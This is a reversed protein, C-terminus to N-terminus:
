NELKKLRLKSIIDTLVELMEELDKLTIEGMHGIRFTKGMLDGYGNVIRYGKSLMLNVMESYDINFTNKITSVTDSEYGKEPFMELNADRAWMRTRMGLQKHRQFRSELGEKNLIYDLQAVLSRIQPIPPTSPTQHLKNKKKLTIFDLYIGRNKVEAAKQIAAESISCVALGPPLAFCKQVSALCVDIGLKDVEVKIGAMSSTADVCVLAGSDKIIPIINDIPNYVGTSTENSQLCVVSYKEKSLAESAFEPTIAKGWEVEEKIINKGNALGVSHWRNGFAGISLMLAKEDQKILNRMCAEMIGTASSTFILCDNKTYLLKKLGEVALQHMESYPKSRHTDNPKALEKLIREPVYVPGPTFLKLKSGEKKNFHVDPM